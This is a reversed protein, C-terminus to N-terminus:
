LIKFDFMKEDNLYGELKDNIDLILPQSIEGMFILDGIKLTTFKSVHSIIEDINLKYDSINGIKGIQENRKIEFHINKIVDKPINKWRGVFSSNDFSMSIDLPLNSEKLIESLKKAQLSLGLTIEDYYRYSFKSSINKGSKTIKVVIMAHCVLQHAFDPIFISKIRESLGLTSDPKIYISLKNIEQEEFTQSDTKKNNGICIIKM